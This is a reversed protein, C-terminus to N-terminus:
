ALLLLKGIVVDPALSSHRTNQVLTDVIARLQDLIGRKVQYMRKQAYVEFEERASEAADFLPLMVDMPPSTADFLVELGKLLEKRAFTVITSDIIQSFFLCFNLLLHPFTRMHIHQHVESLRFPNHLLHRYVVAINQNVTFLQLSLPGEIPFAVYEFSLTSHPSPSFRVVLFFFVCGRPFPALAVMQAPIRPLQAFSGFLALTLRFLANLCAGGL